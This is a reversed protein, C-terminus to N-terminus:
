PRQLGPIASNSLYLLTHQYRSDRQPMGFLRRGRSARVTSQNRFGHLVKTARCYDIAAEADAGAEAVAEAGTGTGTGTGTETETETKTERERVERGRERERERPEVQTPAPKTQRIPPPDTPFTRSQHALLLDM